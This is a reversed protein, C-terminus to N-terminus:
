NQQRHRNLVITRFEEASTNWPITLTHNLYISHMHVLEFGKKKFFLTDFLTKRLDNESAEIQNSVLQIIDKRKKHDMFTPLKVTVLDSLGQLVNVIDNSNMGKRITYKGGKVRDIYGVKKALTKFSEIDNVLPELEAVVDNFKADSPVYIYAVENNFATIPKFITQTINYMFYGGILIGIILIGVIISRIYM